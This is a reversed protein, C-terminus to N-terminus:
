LVRWGRGGWGGDGVEGACPWTGKGGAARKARREQKALARAERARTGAPTAKALGMGALEPYAGQSILISQQLKLKDAVNRYRMAKIAAGDRLAEGMDANVACEHPGVVM